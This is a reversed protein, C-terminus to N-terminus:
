YVTYPNNWKGNGKVLIDGNLSIVPRMGYSGSVTVDGTVIGGSSNIRYVYAKSSSFTVPSMTFWENGSGVFLYYSTNTTSAKGGAM